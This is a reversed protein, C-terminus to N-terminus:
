CKLATALELFDGAVVDWNGAPALDKAQGPGHETPRPVFGTALGAAQAAKLDNNHAAVLM